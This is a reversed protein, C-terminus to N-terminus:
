PGDEPCLPRSLGMTESYWHYLTAPAIGLEQAAKNTSGAAILRLRNAAEALSAFNDPWGNARLANQNQPTMQSVRLPSKREAFMRDLLRDVAEPRSAVPPIWIHQMQGISNPGLARSAVDISRALAIVRVQHKRSFVTAVFSSPLHSDDDGLDLVLTSRTAQRVLERQQSRDVPIQAREVIDKDCRRSIAHVV